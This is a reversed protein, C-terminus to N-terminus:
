KTEAAPKELVQSVNGQIKAAKEKAFHGLLDIPSIPFKGGSRLWLVILNGYVDGETRLNRLVQNQLNLSLERNRAADKLDIFKLKGFSLNLMDIGAFEFDRLSKEKEGTKSPQSKMHAILSHINTKGAENQVIDIEAINLRAVTIRLKNQAFSLPDVEVHLEPLDLFLTGGFEATNYLKLNEITVVPSFLSSSIKGIKVDMGTERRIRQEAFSRFMSDRLLVLLVVLVVIALTLRVIWKILWRIMREVIAL